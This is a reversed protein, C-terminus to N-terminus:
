FADGSLEASNVVVDWMSISPLAQAVDRWIDLPGIPQM